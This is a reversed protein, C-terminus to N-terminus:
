SLNKRLFGLGCLGFSLLMATSGGDPVGTGNTENITLNDVAFQTGDFAEYGPHHTGGSFISFEVSDIGLYNFNILTPATASLVYTNDYISVGLLSGIVEVTLNDRWIATLYASNLNFLTNSVVASNGFGNFAVNNASIAAFQYGSPNLSAPDNVADYTYFNNWNLGNYGNSITQNGSGDLDDFTITAALTPIAAVAISAVCLYKVLKNM